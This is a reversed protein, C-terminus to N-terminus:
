APPAGRRDDYFHLAANQRTAEKEIAEIKIGISGLAEDPTIEHKVMLSLLMATAPDVRYEGAIMRFCTRTDIGLFRAAESRNLGLRDILREFRDGTIAWIATSKTPKSRKRKAM